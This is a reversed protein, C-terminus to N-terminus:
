KGMANKIFSVILLVVAGGVGSTGINALIHGIDLKGEAMATTVLGFYNLLTGGVGGGVIGALSNALVGLSKDKMLAGAINGGVGGSILSVILSVLDM